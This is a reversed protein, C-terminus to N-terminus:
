DDNMVRLQVAYIVPNGSYQVEKDEDICLDITLTM